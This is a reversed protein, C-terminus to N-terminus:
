PTLRSGDHPSHALHPEVLAIYRAGQEAPMAAAVRRLHARTATNCVEELAAVERRAAELDTPAANESTLRQLRTTAAAIDACHGACVVAYDDHLKKVAAFQADDLRFETRIWQLDDGSTGALAAIGADHRRQVLWFACVASVLAAVLVIAIQKM